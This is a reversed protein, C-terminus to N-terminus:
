FYFACLLYYVDRPDIWIFIKCTLFTLCQPQSHFKFYDLRSAVQKGPALQGTTKTKTNENREECEHSKSRELGRRLDQEAILGYFARRITRASSHGLRKLRGGTRGACKTRQSNIEVTGRTGSLDEYSEVRIRRAM